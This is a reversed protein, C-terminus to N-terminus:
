EMPKAPPLQIINAVEPRERYSWLAAAIAAVLAILPVWLVGRCGPAFVWFAGLLVLPIGILAAPLYVNRQALPPETIAVAACLILFITLLVLWLQLAGGNTSCIRAVTSGLSMGGAVTDTGTSSTAPPKVVNNPLEPITQEVQVIPKQPAPPPSYPPITPGPTPAGGIMAPISFSLVSLCVPKGPLASVLTLSIPTAQTLPLTELNIFISLKGNQDVRRGIVNFPIPSDGVKGLVSVYSADSFRLSVSHLANDYIFPTISEVTPSICTNGGPPLLQVTNITINEQAYSLGPIAMTVIGFALIAFLAASNNKIMFCM